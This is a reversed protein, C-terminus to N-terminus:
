FYLPIHFSVSDAAAQLTVHDGWEGWRNQMCHLYCTTTFLQAKLCCRRSIIQFIFPLLVYKSLKKLYERYAM